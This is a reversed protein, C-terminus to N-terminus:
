TKEELFKEILKEVKDSKNISNEECFDNFRKLTEPALTVSLHGKKVEGRRM